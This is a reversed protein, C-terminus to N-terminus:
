VKGATLCTQSRCLDRDTLIIIKKFRLNQINFTPGIGCGLVKVLNAYIPMALVQELSCGYVNDVVGMVGYVAQFKRNKINNIATVASDGEAILIESAVSYNPDTIDEFGAIGMYDLANKPKTIKIGKIKVAEMRVRVNKRLLDVIKRLLGNNRQFYEGLAQKIFDKGVDIFDKNNVKSKHQGEFGPDYHWGAVVGVLGKRCDEYTVEYKSNPELNKAEKTFFECIARLFATEHTGGETTVVFNCYSEILSQDLSKDYSFAIEMDFDPTDIELYTVPFELQSSLYEVNKTIGQAYYDTMRKSGDVTTGSINIILDDPILYALRRVYDEVMDLSVFFEGIYKEAPKIIVKLGHSANKLKNVPHVTPVGDNFEIIQSVTNRYSTIQFLDTLAVTVKMGVGNRGSFRKMSDTREYKTSVHKKMCVEKLKSFPIGRGGDRITFTQTKEDIDVWIRSDEFAIKRNMFEDIANQLIERFLHLAADTNLYSIYMGICRRVQEFEDVLSEYIDDMSELKQDDELLSGELTPNEQKDKGKM